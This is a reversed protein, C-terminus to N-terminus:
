MNEAFLGKPPKDDLCQCKPEVCATFNCTPNRFNSHYRSTSTEVKHTTTEVPKLTTGEHVHTSNPTQAHTTDSHPHPTTSIHPTVTTDHHEPAITTFANTHNTVHSPLPTTDHPQSPTIFTDTTHTDVFKFIQLYIFFIKFNFVIKKGSQATVGLALAALCCCIFTKM